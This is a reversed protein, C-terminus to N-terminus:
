EALQLKTRLREIIRKIEEDIEESSMSEAVKKGIRVKWDRTYKKKEKLLSKIKEARPPQLIKEKEEKTFEIEYESKIVDILKEEHYYDEISGKKLIFLNENPILIKENIFKKVEKDGEAEKDFIMFYPIGAAKSADIWVNLYYKGRNKGWTPIISVEPTRLNVGIKDAWVPFVVRETEGEVFIIANSFFIDSPRIGLEFLLVRLDESGKVRTITTEKGKKKVIWTSGVDAKDIFITSHTTVFIQKEKSFEKFLDFIQRALQPHTHLEPEEIGFIEGEETLFRLLFLLEQEGGGRYQIPLPLDEEMVRLYSPHPQLNYKTLKNFMKEIESWRKQKIREESVSLERLIAQTESDLYPARQLPNQPWSNRVALVLKFKGKLNTIIKSTIDSILEPKLWTELLLHEERFEQEFLTYGEEQAYKKFDTTKESVNIWKVKRTRVLEDAYPGMFYAKKNSRIFILRNGTINKDSAGPAFFVVQLDELPISKSLSEAFKGISVHKGNEILQVEALKYKKNAM